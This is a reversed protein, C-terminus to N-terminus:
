VDHRELSRPRLSCSRRGGAFSAGSGGYREPACGPQGLLIFALAVELVVLANGFRSTGRVSGGTGEKLAENPDMRAARRAPALGFIVGSVLSSALAFSLLTWDASIESLRPTDGPAIALFIQILGIALAIGAAGGLLGLLCSEVLSQRRLRGPSAGLAARLAIERQRGWGRALLLSTLNACAILLVFTAAALLVLYSERADEVRSDLLPQVSLVYSKGVDPNAKLIREGIAGLEAQM